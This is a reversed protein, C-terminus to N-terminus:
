MEFRLGFGVEHTQQSSRFEPLTILGLINASNTRMRGLDVYRYNLVLVANRRALVGTVGLGVLLAAVVYPGVLHIM